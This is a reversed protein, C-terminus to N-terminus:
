QKASQHKQNLCPRRRHNHQLPHVIFLPCRPHLLLRYTSFNALLRPSHPHSITLPLSSFLQVHPLAFYCSFLFGVSQRPKRLTRILLLLESVCIVGFPWWNFWNDEKIHRPDMQLILHRSEALLFFLRGFRFIWSFYCDEFTWSM